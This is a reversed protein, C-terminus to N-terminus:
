KHNKEIAVLMHGYGLKGAFSGFMKAVPNQLKSGFYPIVQLEYYGVAKIKARPMLAILDEMSFRFIYDIGSQGPKGEKIWGADRKVKSYHHVSVCIIGNKKTVRRLEAVAQGQPGDPMFHQLTNACLTADFFSDEFPLTKLDSQVTTINRIGMSELVKLSEKSYDVAVVKDCHSHLSLTSLGTGCGADLCLKTGKPIENTAQRICSFYVPDNQRSSNYSAACNDWVAVSSGSEDHVDNHSEDTSGPQTQRATETM